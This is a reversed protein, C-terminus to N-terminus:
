RERKPLRKIPRGGEGEGVVCSSFLTTEEEAGRGGEGKERMGRRGRTGEGKRVTLDGSAPWSVVVGSSARTTSSYSM